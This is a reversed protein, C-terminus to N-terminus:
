ILGGTESHNHGDLKHKKTMKHASFMKQGQSTTLFLKATYVGGIVIFGSAAAWKLYNITDSQTAAKTKVNLVGGTPCTDARTIRSARDFASRKKIKNNLTKPNSSEINMDDDDVDHTDTDMLQNTTKDNTKPNNIPSVNTMTVIFTIPNQTINHTVLYIAEGTAVRINTVEEGNRLDNPQISTYLPLHHNLSQTTAGEISKFIKFPLYLTPDLLNEVVKININRPAFQNAVLLKYGEPTPAPTVLITKDFPSM